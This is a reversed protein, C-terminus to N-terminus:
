NIDLLKLEKTNVDFYIIKNKIDIQLAKKISIKKILSILMLIFVSHSIILIGINGQNTNIYNLFNRARKKVDIFSEGNLHKRYPLSKKEYLDWNIESEKKGEAIGSDRENIIFNQSTPVKIYESIIKGTQITRDLGSTIIKSIDYKESSLYKGIKHAEQIGKESLTGPLSGLIIDNEGQTTKGHRIIYLKM